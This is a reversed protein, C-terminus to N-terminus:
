IRVGEVKSRMFCDIEATPTLLPAGFLDGQFYLLLTTTNTGSLLEVLFRSRKPKSFRGGRFVLSLATESILECDYYDKREAERMDLFINDGYINVPFEHPDSLIRTICDAVPLNTQYVLDFLAFYKSKM